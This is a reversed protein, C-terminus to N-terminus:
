SQRRLFAPIDLGAEESAVPRVTATPAEAREPGADRPDHGQQYPDRGQNERGQLDSLQPEARRPDHTMQSPAGPMPAPRGRLAGTVIGFLSRSPTPAPVPETHGRPPESFLGSRPSAPRLGSSQSPLQHPLASPSPAQVYDQDDRQAGASSYGAHSANSPAAYNPTPAPAEAAAAFQSWNDSAHGPAHGQRPGQQTLM